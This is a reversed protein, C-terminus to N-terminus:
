SSSFENTGMTAFTAFERLMLMSGTAYERSTLTHTGMDRNMEEFMDFLINLIREPPVDFRRGKPQEAKNKMEKVEARCMPCTNNKNFWTFICKTHFTHGCELTCTKDKCEDFCISCTKIQKEEKKPTFNTVLKRKRQQM